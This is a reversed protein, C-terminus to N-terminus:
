WEPGITLMRRNGVYIVLNVDDSSRAFDIARQSTVLELLVVGFSYVDSKDTLQYNRYYHPDLYGLTGQACTSIHTVDDEVLRSLGFDSVKATLNADLLINSSKVDRHIIPPYASSHLYALAEATEIAVRLRREWTLKRQKTDGLSPALHDFLTGNPVYEYVMLPQETEICCGVLRVLNRHNVQSLIRVENLVQDSGKLNGLKAVKIAVVTGDRLVGKYVQGFGGSGLLCDKSFHATALKMEKVSFLAAKGGNANLIRSREQSIKDKAQQKAQRKRCAVMSILAFCVVAVFLSPTLGAILSIRHRLAGGQKCLGDFPDWAYGSRCRCTSLGTVDTWCASHTPCQTQNACSPETPTDWRIQRRSPRIAPAPRQATSLRNFCFSRATSFSSATRLPLQFPSARTSSSAVMLWIKASAPPVTQSYPLPLSPSSSCPLHSTACLTPVRSQRSNFSALHPRAPFGTIHIAVSPPRASLTLFQGTAALLASSVAFMHQLFGCCYGWGCNAPIRSPEM